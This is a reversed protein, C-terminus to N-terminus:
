LDMRRQEVRAAKVPTSRERHTEAFAYEDQDRGKHQSSEVVRTLLSAFCGEVAHPMPTQVLGAIRLRVANLISLGHNVEGADTHAYQRM